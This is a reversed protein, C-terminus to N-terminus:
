KKKHIANLHKSRDQSTQSQANKPVIGKELNTKAKEILDPTQLNVIQLIKIITEPYVDKNQNRDSHNQPLMSRAHHTNIVIKPRTNKTRDHDRNNQPLCKLLMREVDNVNINNVNFRHACTTSILCLGLRLKNKINM